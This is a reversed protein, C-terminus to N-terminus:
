PSLEPTQLGFSWKATGAFSLSLNRRRDVKMEEKRLVITSSGRQMDQLMRQVMDNSIRFLGYNMDQLIARKTAEIEQVTFQASGERVAWHKSSRLWDVLFDHALALAALVIVDPTVSTNLRTDTQLFIKLNRAYNSPLLSDRWTSAFRDSLADLICAAFAIIEDPLCARELFGRIVSVCPQATSVNRPVLNALHTAHAQLESSLDLNQSPSSPTPLSAVTHEKAPPPTPLNSLPVYSAFYQDLEEDTMDSTVSFAPSYDM